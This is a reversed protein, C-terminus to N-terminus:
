NGVQYRDCFKECIDLLGLDLFAIAQADTSPPVGFRGQAISCAIAALTDSDGGISVAKRAVLEFGGPMFDDGESGEFFAVIAQPVTGQCSEDFEYTDRIEDLTFDLDYGYKETVYARIEDNSAGRRALFICGATAQAGKIGEPHNHTVEATIKAAEEVEELTNFAWAVPSVRMASGNGWSNYPQPDDSDLWDRFRAGYSVDKHLKGLLRMSTQVAKGLEIGHDQSMMIADAVAVTMVSDDTFISKRCFLPFDEGRYNDFEYPSGIIDGVIAGLIM